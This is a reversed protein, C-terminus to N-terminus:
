IQKQKNFISYEKAKKECTAPNVQYIRASLTNYGKSWERWLEELRKLILRLELILNQPTWERELNYTKM